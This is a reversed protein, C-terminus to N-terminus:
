EDRWEASHWPSGQNDPLESPAVLLGWEWILSGSNGLEVYHEDGDDYRIFATTGSMATTWFTQEPTVSKVREVTGVYWAEEKPWWVRVRQNVLWGDPQQVPLHHPM